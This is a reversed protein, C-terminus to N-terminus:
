LSFDEWNTWSTPGQGAQQWSTWIKGPTPPVPFTLFFMQLGGAPLTAATIGANFTTGQSTPTPFDVLPHWVVPVSQDSYTYVWNNSHLDRTTNMWIYARGDGDTAARLGSVPSVITPPTGNASSVEFTSWPEWASLPDNVDGAVAQRITTWVTGVGGGPGPGFAWLQTRGDPLQAGTPDYLASPADPLSFKAWDSWSADWQEGTQVTSWIGTEPGGIVFVWVQLRGDALPVVAGRTVEYPGVPVAPPPATFPIWPNWPASPHESSKVTTFLDPDTASTADWLQMRGANAEPRTPDRKQAEGLLQAAFVYGPLVPIGAATNMSPFPQWPTWGADEASSAKWRTWLNPGPEASAWVQLRLDASRAVAVAQFNFLM